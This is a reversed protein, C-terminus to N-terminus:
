SAVDLATGAGAGRMVRGAALGGPVSILFCGPHRVLTAPADFLQASRVLVAALHQDTVRVGLTHKRKHRGAALLVARWAAGALRPRWLHRPASAGMAVPRLVVDSGQRWAGALLAAYAAQHSGPIYLRQLHYRRRLGAVAVEHTCPVDLRRLLQWMRRAAPEQNFEAVQTGYVPHRQRDPVARLSSISTSRVLCVMEFADVLSSWDLRTPLEPPSPPAALLTLHPQM